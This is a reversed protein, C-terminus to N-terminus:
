SKVVTHTLNLAGCYNATQTNSQHIKEASAEKRGGMWLQQKVGLYVAIWVEAEAEPEVWRGIIDAGGGLDGHYSGDADWSCHQDLIWGYYRQDGHQSRYTVKARIGSSTRYDGEKTIIPQPTCEEGVPNNTAALKQTAEIAEQNQADQESQSMIVNQQPTNTEASVLKEYMKPYNLLLWANANRKFATEVANELDSELGDIKDLLGERSYDEYKAATDKSKGSIKSTILTGEDRKHAAYLNKLAQNPKRPLGELWERTKEAERGRACIDEFESIRPTDQSIPETTEADRLVGDADLWACRQKQEREADVNSKLRKYHTILNFDDYGIQIIKVGTTKAISGNKFLIKYSEGAVVTHDAWSAWSTWKSM